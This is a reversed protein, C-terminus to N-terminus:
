YPAKRVRSQMTFSEDVKDQVLDLGLVAADCHALIQESLSPGPVLVNTKFVEPQQVVGNLVGLGHLDGLELRTVEPQQVVEHLNGLQPVEELGM